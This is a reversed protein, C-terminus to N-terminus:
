SESDSGGFGIDPDKTKHHFLPMLSIPKNYTFTLTVGLGYQEM